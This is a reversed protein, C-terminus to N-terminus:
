PVVQLLLSRLEKEWWLHVQGSSQTHQQMRNMVLM